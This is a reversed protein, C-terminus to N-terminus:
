FVVGVNVDFFPMIEWRGDTNMNEGCAFFGPTNVSLFVDVSLKLRDFLIWSYGTIADVTIGVATGKAATSRNEMFCLTPVFDLGLYFGEPFMRDSFPFVTLNTGLYVNQYLYTDNRMYERLFRIPILDFNTYGAMGVLVIHEDVAHGYVFGYIGMLVLTPTVAIYNRLVPRGDDSVAPTSEGSQAFGAAARGMVAVCLLLTITRKM